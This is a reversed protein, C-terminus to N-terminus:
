QWMFRSGFRDTFGKMRPDRNRALLFLIAVQLGTTPSIVAILCSLALVSSLILWFWYGKVRGNYVPSQFGLCAAIVTSGVLALGVVLAFMALISAGIFLMLRGFLFPGKFQRVKQEELFERFQDDDTKNDDDIIIEIDEYLPKGDNGNEDSLRRTM